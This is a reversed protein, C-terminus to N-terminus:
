KNKRNEKISKAIEGACCGIVLGLWAMFLIQYM